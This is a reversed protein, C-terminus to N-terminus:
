RQEEPKMQAPFQSKLRGVEHTKLIYTLLLLILIAKFLQRFQRLCCDCVFCKDLIYILDIDGNKSIDEKYTMTVLYFLMQLIFIKLHVPFYLFKFTM